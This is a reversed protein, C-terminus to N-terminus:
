EVAAAEFQDKTCNLQVAKASRVFGNIAVYIGPDLIQAAAVAMGLNLAADGDPYPGPKWAGTVVVTKGVIIELQQCTDLMTGTDTVVVVRSNESRTISELLARVNCRTSGDGSPVPMIRFPQTTRAQNLLALVANAGFIYPGPTSRPASGVADNTTFILITM